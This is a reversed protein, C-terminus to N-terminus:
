PVLVAEGAGVTFPWYSRLTEDGLAIVDEATGAVVLLEGLLADAAFLGDGRSPHVVLVLRPVTVTEDTRGAGLREGPGAESVVVLLDETDVAVLVVHGLLTSPTVVGDCTKSFAYVHDGELAARIM